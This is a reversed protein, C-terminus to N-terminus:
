LDLGLQGGDQGGHRADHPDPNRFQSCDLERLRRRERDDIGARRCAAEFRQKLLQAYVGTGSMRTGFQADYAKGGRMDKLQAMVQARKGPHHQQLWEEFLPHLELPLRLLVYGAGLAGAQAAAAVLSELEHDTIVPVVPAVLVRVPVGAERLKRIIGLRAAPSATRPELTRKTDASLTTLSVTVHMLNLVAMEALLDMDRLILTGKTILCAPHRWQLLVELISRTVRLRKEVPQYPDTNAGIMVPRPAYSRKGLEAHLLRAADQKYFLRTEFDLGPSLGLYAHSPRAHCYICGHECGRYPNISRDFGIDPSENYTIVSRAPEPLVVTAISDQEAERYWGDDVEEVRHADFRAAPNSLAGRGTLQQPQLTSGTFPRQM